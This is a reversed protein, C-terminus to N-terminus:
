GVADRNKKMRIESGGRHFEVEDMFNRILYIGRGGASFLNEPSTPDKLQSLDFGQGEDRVVLTVSGDPHGYCALQVKKKPDCGNGHLIANALAERLSLEIAECQPAHCGCRELTAMVREVVPEVLRIESPVAESLLERVGTAGQLPSGESSRHNSNSTVRHPTQALLEGANTFGPDTYRITPTM